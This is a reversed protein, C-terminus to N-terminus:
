RETVVEGVLEGRSNELPELGLKGTELGLRRLFEALAPRMARMNGDEVKLAIGLGGAGVLLVRAQKLKSQGALGVEPLTLHRSYRLLEEHSLSTM